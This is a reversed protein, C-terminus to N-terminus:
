HVAKWIQTCCVKGFHHCVEISSCSMVVWFVANIVTMGVPVEFKVPKLCKSNVVAMMLVRYMITLGRLFAMVTYHPYCCLYPNLLQPVMTQNGSSNLFKERRWVRCVLEPAWGVWIWHTNHRGVRAKILFIYIRLIFYSHTYIYQDHCFCM